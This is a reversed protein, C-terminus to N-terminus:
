QWIRGELIVTNIHFMDDVLVLNARKGVAITGIEEEMGIVRAPNRSAMLFVQAIGCNTHRMMNRCAVEMTLKSGCLDGNADFQLDEIHQMDAPIEEKSVFSDTILVVRDVGKTKVVLRILDPQVHMGHSDCILEAYMDPELLCYEDPGCGRTGILKSIQSTANMCHTQLGVGYKKLKRIQEPTAESHGIAFVVDPNKEKAYQLFPELGKREPAVAWIKALSGAKDVIAEYEEKCIDGQWKNKEPSAGYKPNMYPGEMYIGGIARGAGEGAMAERVRDVSELFEERSLDYYFTPLVTTEGHNLFHKAAGEPEEFFLHGGGGHVHLDVFGPGVYLGQADLVQAGEPVSIEGASGVAVIRDEEVALVGDWLIGNELVIKANKIYLM